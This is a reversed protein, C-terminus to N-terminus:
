PASLFRLIERMARESQDSQFIFQAHASGDLLILEKPEPTKDYDAQVRTLRLTGDANPDDRCLIYLKRGKMQEPQDSGTSGLLVIREIEGPECRAAAEAAAAGGMSGGMVSVSKAGNKRLYRVAALVDLYLPASMMDAAGPGTSKGRGRFDIALVRFGAKVLDPVQKAWSGKDFRGGHALVIGRDGSGYLDAYITGGDETPFSITEQAGALDACALLVITALL